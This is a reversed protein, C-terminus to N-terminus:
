DRGLGGGGGGEGEGGGGGQGDEEDDKEEGLVLRSFESEYEDVEDTAQLTSNTDMPTPPQEGPAVLDAWLQRYMKCRRGDGRIKCYLTYKVDPEINDPSRYSRRELIGIVDRCHKDPRSKDVSWSNLRRIGLRCYAVYAELPNTITKKILGACLAREARGRDPKAQPFGIRDWVTMTQSGWPGCYCPPVKEHCYPDIPSCAPQWWKRKPRTLHLPTNWNYDSYCVPLSFVGAASADAIDNISSARATTLLQPTSDQRLRFDALGNLASNM